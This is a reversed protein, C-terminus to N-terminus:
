KNIHRNNGFIKFSNYYNKILHNIYSSKLYTKILILLVLLKSYFAITM